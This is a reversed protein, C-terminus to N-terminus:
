HRTHPPSIPSQEEEKHKATALEEPTPILGWFKSHGEGSGEGQGAPNRSGCSHRSSDDDSSGYRSLLKAAELKHHFRADAHKGQVTEALFRAIDEGDNTFKAIHRQLASKICM